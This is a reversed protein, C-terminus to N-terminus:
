GDDDGNLLYDIEESMESNSFGKRVVTVIAPDTLKSEDENSLLLVEPQLLVRKRYENLFKMYSMNQLRDEIIFKGAQNKIAWSLAKREDVFSETKITSGSQSVLYKVRLADDIDQVLIVLADRTLSELYDYLDFLEQQEASIIEPDLTNLYYKLYTKACYEGEIHAEQFFRKIVKSKKAQLWLQEDFLFAQADLIYLIQQRYRKSAETFSELFDGRHEQEFEQMLRADEKYRNDLSAIMHVADVYKGKLEKIEEDLREFQISSRLTRKLVEDKEEITTSLVQESIHLRQLEDFSSKADKQIAVYDNQRSLFVKDFAVDPYTVKLKYDDYVQSMQLLDDRMAKIEPTIFHVDLETLNNYTTFLFRRIRLFDLRGAVKRYRTREKINKEISDFYDHVAAEVGITLRISSPVHEEFVPEVVSERAPSPEAASEHKQVSPVAMVNVARQQKVTFTVNLGTAPINEYDDWGNVDFEYKDKTRTMIIGQGEGPNYFLIKGSAQM